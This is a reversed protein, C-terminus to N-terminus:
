FDNVADGDGVNGGDGGAGSGGSTPRAIEQLGGNEATGDGKGGQDGALRAECRRGVTEQGECTTPIRGYPSVVCGGLSATATTLLIILTFLRAEVSSM